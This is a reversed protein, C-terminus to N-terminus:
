NGKKQSQMMQVEDGDVMGDGNHDMMAFHMEVRQNWESREIMGDHNTDHTNFTNMTFTDMDTPGKVKANMKMAEAMHTEIVMRWEAQSIDGNSDHDYADFRREALEMAEDKSIMGDANSDANEPWLVPITQSSTNTQAMAGSAGLVMASALMLSAIRM